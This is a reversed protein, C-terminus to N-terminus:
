TLAFPVNTAILNELSLKAFYVHQTLNNETKLLQKRKTM